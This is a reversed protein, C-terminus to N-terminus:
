HPLVEITEGKRLKVIAKTYGSKWGTIRGRRRKKGPVVQKTVSEVHVGYIEEISKKIEPKTANSFTRFVYQDSKTLYTSKETVHPEKLVKYASKSAKIEFTKPPVGEKKKRKKGAKPAETSEPASEAKGGKSRKPMGKEKQKLFDLIAM